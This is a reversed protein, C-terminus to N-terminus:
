HPSGPKAAVRTNPFTDRVLDRIPEWRPLLVSAGGVYADIAMKEDIARLSVDADRLKQLAWTLGVYEIFGLDSAMGRCGAIITPLAPVAKLQLVERRVAAVLQQQRRMRNFDNDANRTRAYELAREGNLRQAGPEFRVLRYGFDETPYRPDVILDPV